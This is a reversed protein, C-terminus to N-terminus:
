PSFRSTSTNSLGILILSTIKLQKLVRGVNLLGRRRSPCAFTLALGTRPKIPAHTRPWRVCARGCIAPATTRATTRFDAVWLSVGQPITCVSAASRAVCPPRKCARNRPSLEPLEPGETKAWKKRADIRGYKTKLPGRLQLQARVPRVQQIRGNNVTYCDTHTSKLVPVYL